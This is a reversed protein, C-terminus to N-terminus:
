ICSDVNSSLKKYNSPPISAPTVRLFGKSTSCDHIFGQEEKLRNTRIRASFERFEVSEITLVDYSKMHVGWEFTCGNPTSRHSRTLGITESAFCSLSQIFSMGWSPFPFQRLRLDKQLVKSGNKDIKWVKTLSDIGVWASNSSRFKMGRPVKLRSFGWQSAQAAKWM